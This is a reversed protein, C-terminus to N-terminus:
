VTQNKGNERFSLVDQKQCWFRSSPAFSPSPAVRARAHHVRAPYRLAQREEEQSPRDRGDERAGQLLVLTGGRLEPLVPARHVGFRRALLRRQFLLVRRRPLLSPASSRARGRIARTRAIVRPLAHAGCLPDRTRARPPDGVAHQKARPEGSPSTGFPERFSVYCHLPCHHEDARM